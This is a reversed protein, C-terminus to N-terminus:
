RSEERILEHFESAVADADATLAVFADDLTSQEIRTQEPVVGDRVLAAVVAAVLDGAGEVVIRDGHRRVDRVEPLGRLGDLDLTVSPRFSMNQRGTSGAALAAPTDIAIVRGHHLLALRDCLREAEEMFHTVLIVTVGEDRIGEILKWTERRSQPDLGTTLEDLIALEPRGILALAISLRQRQGGSLSSFREHRKSELGLLGLLRAPDAPDAYFSAFLELAEGVRLKDPLESTQLQVGVRRRLAQRHQLPDLGLVNIAGSDPRRLGGIAEVTTTKGAGNPGLIGFIEGRNISLSVDDVALTDGYRVRLHDVSVVVDTTTQARTKELTPTM